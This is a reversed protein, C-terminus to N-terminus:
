QQAESGQRRTWRADEAQGRRECTQCYERPGCSCLLSVQRRDTQNVVDGGYDVHQWQGTLTYTAGAYRDVLEIENQSELDSGTLLLIPQNAAEATVRLTNTRVSGSMFNLLSDAVLPATTRSVKCLGLVFSLALIRRSAGNIETPPMSRGRSNLAFIEYEAATDEVPQLGVGAIMRLTAKRQNHEVAEDDVVNAAMSAFLTNMADSLEGVQEDQIRAYAQQLIQVLMAATEEYRELDRAEAEQRRAIRMEADLKNKDTTLLEQAEHDSALQRDLQSLSQTLMDIHGRANEVQNDDIDDLRADIDRRVQALNDFEENLVYVAQAHDSARREWEEGDRHRCLAAAAHLTEALHNAHEAQGTSSDIVHQIHDTHESPSSLDQGCVCMGNELLSKVFALHRVPISGDDYLPQLTTEVHQVERAALSALLDIRTLDRSLDQAASRRQENARKAHKENDALRQRLEDHAGLSGIIAELDGRAEDLSASTDLRKHRNEELRKEVEALKASVRDLETQMAQLGANRTAKTADRGFNQRLSSVRDAARDFVELGLLARVAFSTKGIVDRRQVVKNESGGVFDTAEDADMVFFDRLGWPLLEEIVRGVGHPNPTWSGDRERELLQADEGTRQFDPGDKSTPEKRITTVTRRLEYEINTPKGELHHRSSGDTEFLISVSTEIGTADPRWAAPHLSFTGPNGPLGREGYMGWRIARLLTTKGSGNEARIVTLRRDSNASPAIEIHDFCAFNVIEIRRILLM